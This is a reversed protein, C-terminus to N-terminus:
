APEKRHTEAIRGRLKPSDTVNKRHHLVNSFVIVWIMFAAINIREWIGLNPTPLNANIHPSEVGSLSGFILFLVFTATTFIRFRKGLAAAGFGMLLMMMLITVVAWTIHLTDTLTGRGAGIVERRHMPPWYFNLICYIIILSGVIRLARSQGASKLVGLGFAAFLLPYLIALLVWLIRTPAGIASLESVTLNVTSYGEYFVPVLINIAIYWVSSLIGCFLLGKRMKETDHRSAILPITMVWGLLVPLGWMLHLWHLEQLIIIEVVFWIVLGGLILGAMFWDNHTRRLIKLFSFIGLTGLGFLIIGPVMFDTFVGHMMDVSMDMLRGDPAAVLLSGGLLSGATEYGIIILLIIRQWGSESQKKREKEKTTIM